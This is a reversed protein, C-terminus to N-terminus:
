RRGGGGSQQWGGDGNNIRGGRGSNKGKHGRNQGRNNNNGLRSSNNNFACAPNATPFTSSFSNEDQSKMLLAEQPSSHSSERAVRQDMTSEKLELRSKVTEFTQLPDYQQIYTVFRAYSDTLRYIM